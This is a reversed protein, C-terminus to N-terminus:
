LKRLAEVPKLKIAKIAPYISALLATVAVAIGVNIYISPDVEPFIHSSMGFQEFGSSLNSLDIGNKATGNISLYSLLIGGPAGVMGLIITELMIMFFVRSKTMGIAMLMGLERFRELVAMLMTNIIGFILALMVILIFVYLSTDLQSSYLELDPSIETYDEVLLHPYKTKLIETASNLDEVSNLLIAIEHRDGDSGLLRELDTSRVYINAEELNANSLKLLGVIRFAASTIERDKNQFTLVVKSRIKVNLKKALKDGIVIANKKDTDLYEGEAVRSTIGTLEDEGDPDIGFIQVGRAGKATAIMGSALIRDSAGKVFPENRIEDIVQPANPIMFKVDRDDKFSPEHIQIHSVREEIATKIYGAIMGQSLGMLFILSWVGLAIALIVVLSRMPSRWINRWALTKIM